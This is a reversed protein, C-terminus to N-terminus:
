TGESCPNYHQSAVSVMTKFYTSYKWGKQLSVDRSTEPLEQSRKSRFMVIGTVVEDAKEMLSMFDAGTVAIGLDPIDMIYTGDKMGYAVAPYSIISM